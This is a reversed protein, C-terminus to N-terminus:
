FTWAQRLRASDSVMREVLVVTGGADRAVRFAETVPAGIEIGLAAAEDETAARAYVTDLGGPAAAFGARAMLEMANSPLRNPVILEPVADVVADPYYSTCVQVARDDILLLRQRWAVLADAEYGFADAVDVPPVARGAGTVRQTGAMGYEAVIERWTRRKGDDGPITMETMVHVVPRNDLVFTGRGSESRVLGWSKLLRVVAQATPNSVNHERQIAPLSPIPDGARLEGRSIQERIAWAISQYTHRGGGRDIM